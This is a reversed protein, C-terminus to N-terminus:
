VKHKVACGGTRIAPKYVTMGHWGHIQKRGERLDPKALRGKISGAAAASCRTRGQGPHRSSRNQLWRGGFVAGAGLLPRMGYISQVILQERACVSSQAREYERCQGGHRAMLAM